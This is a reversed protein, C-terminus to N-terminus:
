NKHSKNESTLDLFPLRPPKYVSPFFNESQGTSDLEVILQIFTHSDKTEKLMVIIHFTEAFFFRPYDM